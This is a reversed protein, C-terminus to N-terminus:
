IILLKETRIHIHPPSLHIREIFIHSVQTYHTIKLTKKQLSLFSFIHCTLCRKKNTKGMEEMIFMEEVDRM